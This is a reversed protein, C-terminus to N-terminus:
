WGKGGALSVAVAARIAALSQTHSLKSLGTNIAAGDGTLGITLTVVREGTRGSKRIRDRALNVIDGPEMGTLDGTLGVIDLATKLIDIIEPAATAFGGAFGAIAGGAAQVLETAADHLVVGAEDTLRSIPECGVWLSMNAASLAFDADTETDGPHLPGWMERDEMYVAGPNNSSMQNELRFGSANEIATYITDLPGIIFLPMQATRADGWTHAKNLDTRLGRNNLRLIMGNPGQFAFEEKRLPLQRLVKPWEVPDPLAAKVGKLGNMVTRLDEEKWRELPQTLYYVLRRFKPALAQQERQTFSTM